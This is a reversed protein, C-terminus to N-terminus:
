VRSAQILRAYIEEFRRATWALDHARAFAQAATGMAERAPQDRLLDLIADGLATADGVPVACAAQPALTDVLGVRTGVTPLGAAAAELVVVAQSEHRSSLVHLHAQRLLGALRDPSVFGHFTVHGALGLARVRAQVEGNLTDEGACDLHVDGQRDVVRRLAALLTAQDKVRNLNAVHILRWPPSRPRSAPAAFRAVDVGLPVLEIKGVLAPPVLRALFASGATIAGALQLAARTVGRSRLSGAGGYGLDALWVLEGGALSVVCPVARARGFAAALLATRDAWFAHLVDFPGAARTWRWFAGALTAAPESGARQTVEVGAIRYRGAGGRGAAAFVHVQHRRALEEALALLAPIVGQQGGADFGGPVVLGVKV